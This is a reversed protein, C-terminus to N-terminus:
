ANIVKGKLGEERPRKTARAVAPCRGKESKVGVMEGQNVDM